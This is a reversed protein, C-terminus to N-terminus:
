KEVSFRYNCYHKYTEGPRIIPSPWQPNNVANPYHQTELCLANQSGYEIGGKGTYVQDYSNCTFFQASPQSTFVEMVIGTEPTSLRVDAEDGQNRFIMTVGFGQSIRIDEFDSYKKIQEKIVAPTRFDMPTGDVSAIKGSPIHDEAKAAYEDCDFEITSNMMSLRPNGTLCFYSHNTLNIPTAADSTAEYSINVSNLEDLSYTVTADVNGPFGSEGDPSHYAMVITNPTVEKVEFIQGQWGEPGGHLSHGRDNQQLIVEKGDLTYKANRIRNANRGITAGFPINYKMYDGINDFGLVVDQMKGNRDAVMLSVIRAGYNSICVEMGNQNKLTYLATAKGNVVTDFRLPDLGSLTLQPESTSCSIVSASLACAIAFKQLLNKKM